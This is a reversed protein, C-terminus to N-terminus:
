DDARGANGDVFLVAESASAPGARLVRSHMCSVVVQTSERLGNGSAGAIAAAPGCPM